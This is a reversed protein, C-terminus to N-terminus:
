NKESKKFDTKGVCLVLAMLCFFPIAVSPLLLNNEVSEHIVFAICGMVLSGIIYALDPNNNILKLVKNLYQYLITMLILMGILGTEALLNLYSSHANVIRLPSLEDTKYAIFIWEFAGAGVGFYPFDQWMNIVALWLAPRGSLTLRQTLEEVNLEKSGFFILLGVVSASFALLILVFKLSFRRFLFLINILVFSAILSLFGGASGSQISGYLLVLQGALVFLILLLDIFNKNIKIRNVLLILLALGAAFSLNILASLNNSNIFTGTLRYSHGDMESSSIYQYGLYKSTLDFLIQYIGLFFIVALLFVLKKPTVVLNKTLIFISIYCFFLILFWITASIDLSMTAFGKLGYAGSQWIEVRLESISQMVWSPIPIIQFFIYCLYILFLVTIVASNNQDKPTIFKWVWFICACISLLVFVLSINQKYAFHFPLLSVVLVLCLLLLLISELFLSSISKTASM